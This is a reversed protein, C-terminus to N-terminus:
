THAVDFSFFNKEQNKANEQAKGESKVGKILFGEPHIFDVGEIVRPIIKSTLKVKILLIRRIKVRGKEKNEGMLEIREGPRLSIKSDDGQDEPSKGDGHDIKKCSLKRREDGKWADHGQGNHGVM